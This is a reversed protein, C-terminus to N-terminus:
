VAKAESGNARPIDADPSSGAVDHRTAFAHRLRFYAIVGPLTPLRYSVTRYGLVALVALSGNAGFALFSGIMGGEVGAIGGPLPLTNGLMAVYYGMVLQDPPRIASPM